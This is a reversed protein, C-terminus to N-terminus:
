EGANVDQPDENLYYDYISVLGGKSGDVITTQFADATFCIQKEDLYEFYVVAVSNENKV